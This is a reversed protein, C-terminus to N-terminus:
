EKEAVVWAPLGEGDCNDAPVGGDGYSKREESGRQQLRVPVCSFRVSTQM